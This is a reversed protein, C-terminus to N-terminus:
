KKSPDFIDVTVSGAEPFKKIELADRKKIHGGIERHIAVGETKWTQGDDTDLSFYPDEGSCALRLGTMLYPLRLQNSKTDRGSIILNGKEFTFSDVSFPLKISAAAARSLSIGGPTPTRGTPRAPVYKRPVYKRPVMRATKTAGGSKSPLLTTVNSPNSSRTPRQLAIKRRLCAEATCRTTPLAAVTRPQSFRRIPGGTRGTDAKFKIEPRRATKVPAPAVRRAKPYFKRARPDVMDAGRKYRLEGYLQKMRPTARVHENILSFGMQRNFIEFKQVRFFEGLAAEFFAQTDTFRGDDTRLNMPTHKPMQEREDDGLFIPDSIPGLSPTSGYEELFAVGDELQDPDAFDIVSGDNEICDDLEQQDADIPFEIIEGNCVGIGRLGDLPEEDADDAPTGDLESIIRRDAEDLARKIMDDLPNGTGAGTSDEGSPETEGNVQRQLSALHREYNAVWSNGDGDGPEGARESSGKLGEYHNNVKGVAKIATASSARGAIQDDGLGKAVAAAEVEQQQQHQLADLLQREEKLEALRKEADILPLSKVIDGSCKAVGRNCAELQAIEVKLHSADQNDREIREIALRRLEIAVDYDLKKLAAKKLYKRDGKSCKIKPDSCADLIREIGEGSLLNVNRFRRSPDYKKSGVNASQPPRRLSAMQQRAQRRRREVYAIRQAYAVHVYLHRWAARLNNFRRSLDAHIRAQAQFDQKDEAERLLKLQRRWIAHQQETGKAILYYRFNREGEILYQRLDPSLRELRRREVRLVLANSLREFLEFIRSARHFMM